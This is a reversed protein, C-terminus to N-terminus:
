NMIIKVLTYASVVCPGAYRILPWWAPETQRDEEEIIKVKMVNYDENELIIKAIARTEMYFRCSAILSFGALAILIGRQIISIQSNLVGYAILYGFGDILFLFIPVLLIIKAITRPSVVVEAKEICSILREVREDDSEDEYEEDDYEAEYSEDASVTASSHLRSIGNYMSFAFWFVIYVGIWALGSVNQM